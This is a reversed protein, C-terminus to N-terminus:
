NGGQGEMKLVAMELRGLGAREDGNRIVVM